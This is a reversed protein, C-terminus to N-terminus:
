ATALSIGVEFAQLNIDVFKPKVSMKIATLWSEHPLDIATSLAGLLIVNSTKTNGLANAQSVADLYVLRAFYKKLVDANLEPYSAAGSSVTVPIIRQSSVVALGDQALYDIARLSEAAELACLVAATGSPILPSYVKEGFRVQAVVSGGRQAMGHVENTKVDFGSAVAAQAVIESALLIGQGGVGVLIVSTTM